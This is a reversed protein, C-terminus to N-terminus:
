LIWGNVRLDTRSEGVSEPSSGDNTASRFLRDMWWCGHGDVLLDRRNGLQVSLTKDQFELIGAKLDPV